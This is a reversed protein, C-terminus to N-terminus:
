RGAAAQGQSQQYQLIFTNVARSDNLDIGAARAADVISTGGAPAQGNVTPRIQGAEQLQGNRSEAKAKMQGGLAEAMKLALQGARTMVRARPGAAKALESEAQAKRGALDLAKYSRRSQSFAALNEGFAADLSVGLADLYPKMHAHNAPDRLSHLALSIIAKQQADQAADSSFTVKSAIDDMISSLGESFQTEIDAEQEREVSARLEAQYRERGAAEQKQRAESQQKEQLREQREQLQWNRAEEDDLLLNERVKAPMSKFAEHFEPPIQALQENLNQGVEQAALADINRYDDLRAPDLGLARFLGNGLREKQGTQPNVTEFLFADELLQTAAGPNREEAHQIFPTTTYLPIGNEYVPQNNEPNIVPSYFREQAEVAAQITEVSLNREALPKFSELPRLGKVAESLVRLQQRQNRLGVVDRTNAQELDSDDEPVTNLIDDLSPTASEGAAPPAPTPSPAQESGGSPTGGLDSGPSPAASTSAGAGADSSGPVATSDVSEDLM